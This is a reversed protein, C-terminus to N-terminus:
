LRVQYPAAAELMARGRSAHAAVVCRERLKGALAMCKDREALYRAQIQQRQASRAADRTRWAHAAVDMGAAPAAVGTTGLDLAAASSIVLVTGLAVFVARKM